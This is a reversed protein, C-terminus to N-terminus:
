KAQQTQTARYCSSLLVESKEVHMRDRLSHIIVWTIHRVAPYINAQRNKSQLIFRYFILMELKDTDDNTAYIKGNYPAIDVFPETYNVGSTADTGLVSGLKTGNYAYFKKDNTVVIM